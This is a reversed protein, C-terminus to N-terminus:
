WNKKWHLTIYCPIKLRTSCRRKGTVKCEIEGEHTLFHGLLCSFETSLHGVTTNNHVWCIVITMVSSNTLWPCLHFCDRQNCQLITPVSALYQNTGVTHVCGINLQPLAKNDHIKWPWFTKNKVIGYDTSNNWTLRFIVDIGEHFSGQFDGCYLMLWSLNRHKRLCHGVATSM